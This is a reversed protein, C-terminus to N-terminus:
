ARLTIRDLGSRYVLTDPVWHGSQTKGSLVGEFDGSFRDRDWPPSAGPDMKDLGFRRSVRDPAGTNNAELMSTYLDVINLHAALGDGVNVRFADDATAARAESGLSSALLGLSYRSDASFNYFPVNAAPDLAVIANVGGSIRSATDAAVYAGLSHGILNIRGTRLGLRQLADAAFDGIKGIWFLAQLADDTAAAQSWDIALVQTRRGHQEVARSISSLSSPDGNWGHVVIWTERNARIPGTSGDAYVLGVRAKSDGSRIVGWNLDANLRLEYPTEAHREGRVVRLQYSGRGLRLSIREAKTGSRRSIEIRKGEADRLDLDADDDLGRLWANFSSRDRLEFAYVDRPNADNITGTFDQTADHAFSSVEATVAMLRRTELIELIPPTRQAM